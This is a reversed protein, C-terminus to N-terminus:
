NILKNSNNNVIIQCGSEKERVRERELGQGQGTEYSQFSEDECEVGEADVIVPM